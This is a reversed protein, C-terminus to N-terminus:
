GVQAVAGDSYAFYYTTGNTAEMKKVAIKDQINVAEGM